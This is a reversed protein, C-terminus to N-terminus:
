LALPQSAPDQCLSQSSATGFWGDVAVSSSPGCLMVSFRTGSAGSVWYTKKSRMTAALLVNAQCAPLGGVAVRVASFQLAALENHSNTPIVSFL